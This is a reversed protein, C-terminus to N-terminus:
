YTSYSGPPFAWYQCEFDEVVKAHPYFLLSSVPVLGIKGKSLNFAKIIQNSKPLTTREEMLFLQDGESYDMLEPRNGVHHYRAVAHALLKEKPAAGPTYFDVLNVIKVQVASINKTAPTPNERELVTVEPLDCAAQLLSQPVFVKKINSPDKPNIEVFPLALIDFSSSDM